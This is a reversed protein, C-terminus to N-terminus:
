QDGGLGTRFASHLIEAVTIQRDSRDLGAVIRGGSLVLIRHSLAVLEELESAVVIIAMGDAAMEELMEVIEAKAGIDVGRTPEDALLVKPPSHRWRALLLKQQNGGSLQMAPTSLRGLSFGVGECAAAAARETRRRSLFGLRSSKRMDGLVINDMSAMSLALGESKRDEPLLATGAKRAARVTRPWGIEKGEIWLRGRAKGEAGALARLLTTRGSGVLGAIGLIEGPRVELWIDEIAGTVTVGEARLLPPSTAEPAVVTVADAVAPDASTPEPAPESRDLLGETFRADGTEGLMARVLTVKSWEARPATRMRRGERFVTIADALMLVEELNHSVFVITIGRERLRQMLGYLAEREPVALSATPEDFLIVRCNRVLARMIELLQQGAVSLRGAQTGKAEPAVGLEKCLELYRKRMDRGQLFGLRAEPQGLFVNAEVSLLPAITLEQYVAAVGASRLARPRGYPIEDGFLEVRGGSPSIRGAIVGLATSKGAGNEGVLAHVTGAGIELDIGKLAETAGYRKTVGAFRAAVVDGRVREGTKEVTTV